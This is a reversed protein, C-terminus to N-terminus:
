RIIVGLMLPIWRIDDSDSTSNFLNDFNSDDRGANVNVFRSELFLSTRGIGFELGAGGNLGWKTVSSENAEDDPDLVDNGLHGGLASGRGFNRFMYLGGGGVLYVATTRNENFPFRVTVDAEASWINPDPNDITIPTGGTSVFRGGNLQSYGLNLRFGLMSAPNHWGIPVAFGYGNDYGLDRVTGSPTMAGGSLGWYFASAGNARGGTMGQNNDDIVLAAAAATDARAISDARAQEAMSISDQRMQEMRAISDLRAAAAISDANTVAMTDTRTREAAMISDTRAREAAMISDNRAQSARTISDARAISDMRAISDARMRSSMNVEGFSEKRIPIRQTSTTRLTDRTTTDRPPPTVQAHVTGALLAIAASGCMARRALDRTLM